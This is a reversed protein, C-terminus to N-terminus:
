GNITKFFGKRWYLYMGFEKKAWLASLNKKPDNVDDITPSRNKSLLRNHLGFCIRIRGPAVNLFIGVGMGQPQKQRGQREQSQDRWVAQVVLSVSLLGFLHWM